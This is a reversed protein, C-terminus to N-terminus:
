RAGLEQKAPSRLTEAKPHRISPPMTCLWCSMITGIRWIRFNQPHPGRLAKQVRLKARHPSPPCPYPLAGEEGFRDPPPAVIASVQTKFGRGKQLRVSLAMLM